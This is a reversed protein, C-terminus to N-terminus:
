QIKNCNQHHQWSTIILSVLHFLNNEFCLIILQIAFVHLYILGIFLYNFAKITYAEIFLEFFVM